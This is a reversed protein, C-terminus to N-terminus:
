NGSLCCVTFVNIQVVVMYQSLMECRGGIAQLGLSVIADCSVPCNAFPFAFSNHSFLFYINLVKPHLVRVVPHLLSLSKDHVHVYLTCMTSVIVKGGGRGDVICSLCCAEM